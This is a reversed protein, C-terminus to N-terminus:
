VAQRIWMETTPRTSFSRSLTCNASTYWKSSVPRRGSKCRTKSSRMTAPRTRLLRSPRCSAQATGLSDSSHSPLSLSTSKFVLAKGPPAIPTYYKHDPNLTCKHENNASLLPYGRGTDTGDFGYPCVCEHIWNTTPITFTDGEQPCPSTATKTFGPWQPGTECPGTHACRAMPACDNEDPLCAQQLTECREGTWLPKCDCFFEDDSVDHCVADNACPNSFCPTNAGIARVTGYFTAQGGDSLDTSRMVRFGGSTRTYQFDSDTTINPNAEWWEEDFLAHGYKDFRYRSVNVHMDRASLVGDLSFSHNCPPMPFSENTNNSFGMLLHVTINTTNPRQPPEPCWTSTSVNGDIRVSEHARVAGNVTVSAPDVYYSTVNDTENFSRCYVHLNAM